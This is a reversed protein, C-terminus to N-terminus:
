TQQLFCIFTGLSLGFAECCRVLFEARAGVALFISTTLNALHQFKLATPETGGSRNM